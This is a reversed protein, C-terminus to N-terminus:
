KQCIGYISNYCNEIENCHFDGSNLFYGENCEECFGTNYNIFKCNNFDESNLYKCINNDTLFFNEKCKVNEKILYKVIIQILVVVIKM